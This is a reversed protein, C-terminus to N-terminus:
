RKRRESEVRKEKALGRSKIKLIGGLLMAIGPVGIVAIQGADFIRDTLAKNSFESVYQAIIFCCPLLFFVSILILGVGLFRPKGPSLLNKPVIGGMYYGPNYQNDQWETLDDISKQISDNQKKM